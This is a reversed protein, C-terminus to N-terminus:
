YLWVACMYLCMSLLVPGHVYGCVVLDTLMNIYHAVHFPSRTALTLCLRVYRCEPRGETCSCKFSVM